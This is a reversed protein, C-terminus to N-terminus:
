KKTEVTISLCEGLGEYQTVQKQPKKPLGPKPVPIQLGNGVPLTSFSQSAAPKGQTDGLEKVDRDIKSKM